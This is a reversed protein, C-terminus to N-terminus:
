QFFVQQAANKIEILEQQFTVLNRIIQDKDQNQGQPIAALANRMRAVLISVEHARIQLAEKETRSPSIKPDPLSIVLM